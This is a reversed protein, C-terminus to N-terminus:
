DWAPAYKGSTMRGDRKALASVRKMEADTLTFDFLSANEIL